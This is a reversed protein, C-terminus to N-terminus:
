CQSTALLKELTLDVHTSNTYILACYITQSKGVTRLSVWIRFMYISLMLGGDNVYQHYCHEFVFSM